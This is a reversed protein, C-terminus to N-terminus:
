FAMSLIIMMVIFVLVGVVGGGILATQSNNGTTNMFKNYVWAAVGIAMLFSIVAASM